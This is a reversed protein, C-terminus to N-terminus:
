SHIHQLAISAPPLYFPSKKTESLKRIPMTNSLAKPSLPASIPQPTNSIPSIVNPEACHLPKSNKEIRLEKNLRVPLAYKNKSSASIQSDQSLTATPPSILVPEDVFDATESHYTTYLNTSDAIYPGM